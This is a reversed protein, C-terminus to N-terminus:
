SWCAAETAEKVAFEVQIIQNELNRYIENLKRMLEDSAHKFRSVFEDAERELIMATM